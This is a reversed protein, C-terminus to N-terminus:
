KPLHPTQALARLVAGAARRSVSVVAFSTDGFAFSTQLSAQLLERLAVNLCGGHAVVLVRREPRQWLHELAGGVRRVAAMYSEGGDKTYPAYRHRFAPEPYRREAEAFPLGALPGNDFERWADDPEPVLGLAASVIEATRRARLLSSCVVREFGPPRAAWYVALREAQSEGVATLPSDYRGEHVAEDDARSRGHRLLTLELSTESLTPALDSKPM